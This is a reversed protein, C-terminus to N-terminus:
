ITEPMAKILNDFKERAALEFTHGPRPKELFAKLEQYNKIVDKNNNYIKELHAENIRGGCIDRLQRALVPRKEELLGELSHGNMLQPKYYTVFRLYEHRGYIFTQKCELTYYLWVQEFFKKRLATSGESGAAVVSSLRECLEGDESDYEYIDDIVFDGEQNLLGTDQMSDYYIYDDGGGFVKWDLTAGEPLAKEIRTKMEQHTGAHLSDRHVLMLLRGGPSVKEACREMDAGISPIPRNHQLRCVLSEADEEISVTDFALGKERLPDWHWLIALVKSYNNKM